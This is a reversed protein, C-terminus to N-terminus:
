WIKLNLSNKSVLRKLHRGCTFCWNQKNLKELPGFMLHTVSKTLINISKNCIPTKLDIVKARNWKRAGLGELLAYSADIQPFVKCLALPSFFFVVKVSFIELEATSRSVRRRM